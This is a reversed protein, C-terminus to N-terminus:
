ARSVQTVVARIGAMFQEPTFFSAREALVSRLETQAVKDELVGVIKEVADSVSNYRLREEAGVIEVQGGDNSVFVVCGARVMEAPAMGFHEDRKAHIGYRSQGVLEEMETRSINEHVTVWEWHCQVLEALVTRYPLDIERGMSSGIIHLKVAHGQERVRTLIEVITDHRKDASFRGICLFSDERTAWPLSAAGRVVPPYLKQWPAGYAQDFQQGTWDSNVLTVNNRMREFSFGSVRRWPRWRLAMLRWRSERKARCERDYLRGLYPFHIYQMAPPGLDVEDCFSLVADYRGRMTKVLRSLLAMPIFSWPDPDLAAIKRLWSPAHFNRFRLTDLRTGFFRNVENVELPIWTLVDLAYEDQLAMIAWAAVAQGGGPPQINPQVILM